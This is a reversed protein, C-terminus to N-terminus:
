GANTAFMDPQRYAEEIRKCAIEFYKPAREIGIFRRGDRACAVGTTGSGMFPDLVTCSTEVHAMSLRMLELPKQTPHRKGETAMQGRAFRFTRPTIADSVWAFESDSLSFGNQMKDWIIYGRSPPLNYYNGGWVVGCGGSLQLALSIELDCTEGDWEDSGDWLM